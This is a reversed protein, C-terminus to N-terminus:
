HGTTVPRNARHLVLPGLVARAVQDFETTFPDERGFCLRFYPDEKEARSWSSGEWSKRARCVDWKLDRAYEMSSVPFFRLPTTLGLRYHDLLIRLIGTAGELRGFIVEGDSMLLLSERPYGKTECANLIVHEIWTRIQDKAKLRACRYRIKHEHLMNDLRGVLRFEGIPLDFDLPELLSEPSIEGRVRKSFSAVEDAIRSFAAEGHRAPPLLGRSRAVPLAEKADGGRLLTELIEQKLDYEELGGVSFAERDELPAVTEELHIGLRHELLFRSPNDYFRLLRALPVDKWDEDPAKLPAALFAASRGTDKRAERLAACNEESYSFLRSRGSFYEPNFAQLRHRTVLRNELAAREDAFGGAVADIFESVLVSPPIESNDRVSQGVYSIYLYNRASLICELFLYRDEDRLSRDGLCPQRAVLDFGPPRDQRPFTGDNMGVLAVVRFPISRMPLMACFTVGGSMFGLGKELQALRSNLWSRVVDLDVEGTFGAKGALEGMREVVGAVAALERATDEDTEIFDNLLARVEECWADLTRPRALNEALSAIKRAFEALRGLTQARSGEMEDYPLVGSFMRGREDPMAYGLLLRDLGAEFSGERYAPLGLRARHREDMGWRVRTDELWGRVTELEAEDLGFRRSVPPSELIDFVRTVPLRSGPLALLSLLAGAIQGESALSRDAISYPIKRAPDQCSEFVASIYPAYTEIDPTMVVIDRPALGREREMLALLNDYLIEMERMPSHCSHIQVSFDDPAIPKVAKKVSSGDPKFIGSQIAALLSGEGPEEHVDREAVAAKGTDLVMDSFDRGLKGLSSLLPNGERRVDRQTREEARDAVEYFGRCPSLLFMHINSFEAAASLIDLHYKPLYSIGFVSIRQPLGLRSLTGNAALLLFDQRLHGRHAERGPRALERWLIAQWDAEAGSEWGLLMQPRFVTYQDFTDAIKEALQFRKLGGKDGALYNRLPAFEERDLLGPLMELIRWTMVEPLFLSDDPLEPFARRFLQWVVSNPFPYSCNAWVGIRRAIEMALWRQMGKSQVVIVEPEFPSVLPEKVIEVLAAVLNEMRNSSHVHLPM